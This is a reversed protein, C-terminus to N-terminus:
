HVYLDMYIALYIIWVIWHLNGRLLLANMFYWILLADTSMPGICDMYEFMFNLIILNILSGTNAWLKNPQLFLGTNGLITLQWGTKWKLSNWLYRVGKLSVDKCSEGLDLQYQKEKREWGYIGICYLHPFSINCYLKDQTHESNNKLYVM